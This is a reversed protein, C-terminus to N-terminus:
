LIVEELRVEVEDGLRLAEITEPDLCKDLGDKQIIALLWPRNNHLFYLDYYDRDLDNNKITVNKTKM